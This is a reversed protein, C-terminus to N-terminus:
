QVRCSCALVLSMHHGYLLICFTRAHMYNGHTIVAPQHMLHMMCTWARVFGNRHCLSSRTRALPPRLVSSSSCRSWTQQWQERSSKSGGRWPRRRTAEGTGGHGASGRHFENTTTPRAAAAAVQHHAHCPDAAATRPLFFGTCSSRRTTAPPAAGAVAGGRLLLLPHPNSSAAPALRPQLVMTNRQGGMMVQVQWPAGPAPLPLPLYPPPANAVRPGGAGTLAHRDRLTAGGGGGGGGSVRPRHHCSSLPRQAQAAMEGGGLVGALRVALDEVVALRRQETADAIGIDRLVESPLWRHVDGM